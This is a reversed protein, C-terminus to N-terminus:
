FLGGPLGASGTVKSLESACLDEIQKIAENVSTLILDELMEIDDPDVVDPQLKLSKIVKEGTILISIAGGGATVTIEKSKLEEQTKEMQQQMKQAQKMINNMNFGSPMGSFGKAM